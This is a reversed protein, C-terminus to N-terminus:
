RKTAWIQWDVAQLDSQEPEYLEESHTYAIPVIFGSVLVSKIDQKKNMYLYVDKPWSARALKRGKKLKGLAWRWDSM